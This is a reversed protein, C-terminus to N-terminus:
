DHNPTARSGGKLGVSEFFYFVVVLDGGWGRVKRYALNDYTHIHPPFGFGIDVTRSPSLVIYLFGTNLSPNSWGVHKKNRKRVLWFGHLIWDHGM